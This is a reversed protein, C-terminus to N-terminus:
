SRKRQLRRPNFARVADEWDDFRQDAKLSRPDIEWPLMLKLEKGTAENKQLWRGASPDFRVSVRHGPLGISQGLHGVGRHDVKVCTYM